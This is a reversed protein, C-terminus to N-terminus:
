KDLKLKLEKIGKLIEKFYKITPDKEKEIIKQLDSLQLFSDLIKKMYDLKMAEDNLVFEFYKYGSCILDCVHNYRLFQIRSIKYNSYIFSVMALGPLFISLKYLLLNFWTLDDFIKFFLNINLLLVIIILSLFFSFTYKKKEKELKHKQKVISENFSKITNEHYHVDENNMLEKITQNAEDLKRTTEEFSETLKTITNRLLHIFIDNLKELINKLENDDNKGTKCYEDYQHLLSTASNKLDIEIDQNLYPKIEDVLINLKTKFKKNNTLKKDM